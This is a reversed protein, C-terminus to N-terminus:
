RQRGTVPKAQDATNAAQPEPTDVPLVELRTTAVVRRAVPRGQEDTYGGDFSMDPPCRGQVARIAAEQFSGEAKWVCDTPTGDPQLIYSFRVMGAQQPPKRPVVWKVRSAYRGVVPNGQSDHGPVFVARESIVRCTTEDLDPSGSSQTVTCQAVRGVSSVDLVFSTIGQANNRLASAPYDDPTVWGAPDGAPTPMTAPVVIGPAIVGKGVGPTDSALLLLLVLASM